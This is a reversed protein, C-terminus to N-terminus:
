EESAQNYDLIIAAGNLTMGQNDTFWEPDSEHTHTVEFSAGEDSGWGNIIVPLDKGNLLHRALEHATM